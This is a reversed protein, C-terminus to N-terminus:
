SSRFTVPALIEGPLLRLFAAQNGHQGVLRWTESSILIYCTAGRRRHSSQTKPISSRVHGIAIGKELVPRASAPRCLQTREGVPKQADNFAPDNWLFRGVSASRRMERTTGRTDRFSRGVIM